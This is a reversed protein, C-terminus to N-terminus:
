LTVLMETIPQTLRQSFKYKYVIVRRGEVNLLLHACWELSVWVIGDLIGKYAIYKFKGDTNTM